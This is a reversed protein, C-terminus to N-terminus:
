SVTFAKPKEGAQWIDWMTQYSKEINITFKEIDFLPVQLRTRELKQRIGSLRAPNQALQLALTEYDELSYTILEPLDAAKLLSGAVRSAFTSGACTLVPLGAWLADSTTTHANVPFTDLFLDALRHRALHASLEMIPAFVLRAPNVGHKFAEKRLNDKVLTNYELLWLVSGETAQLLRMWIDFVAPRIKYSQNFCCFIFGQEPLGCTNRSPMTEAVRRHTDNPQYCDPLQVIKESYFPQQDMPLIFPDAIIYDMFDVGMTGPYGIYNVQVPAPRYAPIQLRSDETCGKLDVLIDIGDDYIKRAAVAHPMDRIDIFHEFGRTLRQRMASNDNPGYSYATVEFRARDHREFLEAMLFATAHHHFDASLYGIRIRDRAKGPAHHFMFEPPTVSKQVFNRACTLQDAPTSLMSLIFFPPIGKCGERVMELLQKELASAKDWACAQQLKHVLQALIGANGPALAVAREFQTIAEETKKQADLALGLNNYAEFLGPNIIIAQKHQAVAEDLKGQDKLLAGLNIRAEAFNTNLAVAREYEAM